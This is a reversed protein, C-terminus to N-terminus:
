EKQIKLPTKRKGSPLHRRLTQLALVKSHSAPNFRNKFVQIFSEM